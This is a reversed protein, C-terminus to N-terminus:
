RRGQQAREFAGLAAGLENIPCEEEHDAGQDHKITACFPCEENPNEDVKMLVRLIADQLRAWAAPKTDVRETM